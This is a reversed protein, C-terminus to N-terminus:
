EWDYIWNLFEPVRDRNLELYAKALQPEGGQIACAAACVMTMEESPNAKLEALAIDLLVSLTDLHSELVGDPLNASNKANRGLEICVILLILQFRQEQKLHSVLPLMYPTAALSASYVDSQHCLAGWLDDLLEAREDDTSAGGLRTLAEPIDNAFGYAHTLEGWHPDDLSLM